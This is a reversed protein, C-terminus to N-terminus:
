FHAVGALGSPRTRPVKTALRRVNSNFNLAYVDTRDLLGNDINFTFSVPVGALPSALVPERGCSGRDLPTAVERHPSFNFLIAIAPSVYCKGNRRQRDRVM